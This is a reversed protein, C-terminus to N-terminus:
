VSVVASAQGRTCSPHRDCELPREKDHAQVLVRGVAVIVSALSVQFSAAEAWSIDQQCPFHPLDLPLFHPGAPLLSELRGGSGGGCVVGTALALPATSGVNSEVAM